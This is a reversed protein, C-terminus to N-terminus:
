HHRNQSPIRFDGHHTRRDAKHSAPAADGRVLLRKRIPIARAPLASRSKMPQRWRLATDYAPAVVGALRKSQSESRFEPQTRRGATLAWHPIRVLAAKRKRLAKRHRDRLPPESGQFRRVTYSKGRHFESDNDRPFTVPRFSMPRTAAGAFM